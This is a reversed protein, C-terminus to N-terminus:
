QNYFVQDIMLFLSNLSVTKLLHLHCQFLNFCCCLKNFLFIMIFCFDHFIKVWLMVWLYLQRNIKLEIAVFRVSGFINSKASSLTKHNRTGSTAAVYHLVPFHLAFLWFWLFLYLSFPIVTQKLDFSDFLLAFSFLISAIWQLKFHFHTFMWAVLSAEAAASLALAPLVSWIIFCLWCDFDFAKFYSRDQLLFSYLAQISWVLLSPISCCL